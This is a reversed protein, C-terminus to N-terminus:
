IRNPRCQAHVNEISRLPYNEPARQSSPHLGPYGEVPENKDCSRRFGHSEKTHLTTIGASLAEKVAAEVATMIDRENEPLLKQLVQDIAPDQILGTPRGHEDRICGATEEPFGIKELMRTNLMASHVDYVFVVIPHESSLKDLEERTPLRREKVIDYNFNLGL